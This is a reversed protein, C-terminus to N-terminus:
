TVAEGLRNPSVGSMTHVSMFKCGRADGQVRELLKVALLHKRALSDLFQSDLNLYTDDFGHEFSQGLEHM